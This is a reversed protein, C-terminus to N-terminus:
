IKALTEIFRKSKLYLGTYRDYYDDIFNNIEKKINPKISLKAIKDIDVYYFMRILKIVEPKVIEESPTICEKCLYGGKHSSITIINDQKGCIVCSDLVPKVGLFELVKLEFINTIIM